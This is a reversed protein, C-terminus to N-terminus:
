NEGLEVTELWGQAPLSKAKRLVNKLTHLALLACKTRRPGIPVGLLAYLDEKRLKELEKANRGELDEMLMSMGAQSIACGTGSWGAREVMGDRLVLQLTLEDGCSLNIEQHSVTPADIPQKGRPHRYHDLVNEAYVDM